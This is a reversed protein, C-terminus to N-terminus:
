SCRGPMGRLAFPRKLNGYISFRLRRMPPKQKRYSAGAGAPNKMEPPVASRDELNRGEMRKSPPWPVGWKELTSRTWGGNETKEAEIQEKTIEAM